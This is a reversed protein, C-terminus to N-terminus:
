KYLETVIKDQMAGCRLCLRKQRIRSRPLDQKNEVRDGPYTRRVYNQTYQEWKGWDHRFWCTM